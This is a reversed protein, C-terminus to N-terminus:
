GGAEIPLGVESYPETGELEHKRRKESARQMERAIIIDREPMTLIKDVQSLAQQYAVMDLGPGKSAAVDYGMFAAVIEEKMAKLRPEIYDTWHHSAMFEAAKKAREFLIEEGLGENM